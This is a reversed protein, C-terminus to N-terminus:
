RMTISKRPLWGVWTEGTIKGKCNFKLMKGAIQLVEAAMEKEPPNTGGNWNAALTFTPPPNLIYNEVEINYIKGVEFDSQQKVKASQKSIIIKKTDDNWATMPLNIKLLQEKIFKNM